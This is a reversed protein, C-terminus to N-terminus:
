TNGWLEIIGSVNGSSPYIRIQDLEEINKRFATGTGINPNGAANIWSGKINFITYLSSNKASSIDIEIRGNEGSANGLGQSSANRILDIKNDSFSGYTVPSSVTQTLAWSFDGSANDFSVGEDASSIMWLSINDVSCTLELIKITYGTYGAPLLVDQESESTFPTTSILEQSGGGGIDEPKVKVAEGESADYMLLYDSASDVAAAETLNDVATFLGEVTMRSANNASVNYVYLIDNADPVIVGFNNVANLINRPSVKKQTNASDDYLILWDSDDVNNGLDDLGDIFETVVEDLAMQVNTATLGSSTNDYSISTATGGVIAAAQEAWYKASGEPRDGISGTAWLQASLVDANTLIVDANTLAVDAATATVNNATTIVDASTLVASAAANAESLAAADVLSGVAGFLLSPAFVLINSTGSAPADNISLSVGDLTFETPSLIERTASQTKHISVDDITGSFGAGEFALLQTSGAIITEVYTGDADRAEGLIDGVKPAITGATATVTYTVTYSHGEMLPILSSQSIDTDIDGTATAVGSAITWGTGKTWNTDTDFSGNNAYEGFKKDAFVMITNEDDGLNESLTFDTTSGDGSFSQVFADTGEIAIKIDDYTWLSGSNADASAQDPYLALKYDEQVHPIIVAGGSVPYGSANLEFFGATTAGQYGTAMLIPTTTGAAYAKLVAGSYNDSSVDQYQPPLFAIPYWTM